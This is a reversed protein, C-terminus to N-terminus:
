TKRSASITTISLKLVHSTFAGLSLQLWFLGLKNNTEPEHNNITSTYLVQTKTSYFNFSSVVLTTCDKKQIMLMKADMNILSIMVELRTIHRKIRSCILQWLPAHLQVLWVTSVRIITTRGGEPWNGRSEKVAPRPSTLTKGSNTCACGSFKCNISQGIGYIVRVPRPTDWTASEGKGSSGNRPETLRLM